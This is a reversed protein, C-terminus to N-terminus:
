KNFFRGVVPLQAFEKREITSVFWIFLSLLFVASILSFITSSWFHTLGNHLFFLLVVIVIYATLKKWAYPIRYHKQGWIFSIVMMSGYCFFTAWACAMYSYGSIFIYNITITIAAGILTIWAGAMTKHSLKYWISLNYYIGLFMNALLLIPVVALGEWYKPGIFHKWIPMFLSVVLFMVAIIIVFFKMVRAYVRQPNQGEAQKFFFPEAGMRFAQIFLTILISLKYCANYIGVQEERFIAEGPLWWRLMLRDFTENIMGGMGAVILPLSYLMMQAWLKTNFTFRIQKIESFLLLLTFASQIVNALVVYVIPNTAPSYIKTVWSAPDKALQNPCYSIFFWTFFINLLIGSIKIFAFKKPRGDARLKAFPITSLADLAIIAISLQIIQPFESLGTIKGVVSQNLWLIATFVITSFLLSLATTNYITQKNEDKSAFRFYATEFGYTFIINLIPILSYILGMKGYDSTNALTYTLYPTLLYNIFRAAISSAGYWMTQGALKKISSM